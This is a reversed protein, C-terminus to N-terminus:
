HYSKNIVLIILLLNSTIIVNITNTIIVQLILLM